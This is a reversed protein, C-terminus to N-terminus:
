VLAAKQWRVELCGAGTPGVELTAQWGPPPMAPRLQSVDVVVPPPRQFIVYLEVQDAPALVTLTVPHPPLAAIVESVATTLAGAVDRGVPGPDGIVQVEVPVGSDRAADLVPELDALLGAPPRARGVLARRLAAAHRACRERVAPDGPDLREGAIARLLPLAEIDLRALRERRDRQIAEAAAREAAARSALASRCAAVRAQARIAPRLTAFVALVVVITYGTVALRAQGLPTMGLVRFAFAAHVAFVAAAGTAWEWAPRCLAVLALLWATGAVSWDVSGSANVRRDWGVLAVAAVAVGIAIAAEQGRFRGARARPVLWVAAILMALWAVAPIAPQRFDHEYALVQILTTLQWVVAVGAVM